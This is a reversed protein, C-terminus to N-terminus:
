LLCVCLCLNNPMERSKYFSFALSRSVEKVEDVSHSRLPVKALTMVNLMLLDHVRVYGDSRMDLKLELAQHRM